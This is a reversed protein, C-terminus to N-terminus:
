VKKLTYYTENNKESKEIINEESLSKLGNDIDEDLDEHFADIDLLQQYTLTKHLYLYTIIRCKTITLAYRYM